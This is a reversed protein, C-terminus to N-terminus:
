PARGYCRAARPEASYERRRGRAEDGGYPDVLLGVAAARCVGLVATVAPVGADPYRAVRSGRDVGLSGAVRATRRALESYDV